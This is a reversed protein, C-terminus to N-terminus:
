QRKVGPHMQRDHTVSTDDIGVEAVDQAQVLVHEEPRRMSRDTLDPSSVFAPHDVCEVLKMVEGGDIGCQDSELSLWCNGTSM